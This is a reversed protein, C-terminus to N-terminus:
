EGKEKFYVDHEYNNEALKNSIYDVIPEDSESEFWENFATEVIKEAELYDRYDGNTLIICFDIWENFDSYVNICHTTRVMDIGGLLFPLEDSSDMESDKKIAMLGKLRCKLRRNEEHLKENEEILFNNQTELEDNSKEYFNLDNELVTIDLENSDIEERLFSALEYSLNEEIVELADTKSGIIVTKGSNLAINKM